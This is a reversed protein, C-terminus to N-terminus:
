SNLLKDFEDVQKPPTIKLSARSSPTFGFQIAITKARDWAVSNRKILRQYVKENEDTLVADFTLKSLEESSEIYIAYENCYSLFMDLDILGLLNMNILEKGKSKYIKKALASFWTPPAPLKTIKEAQPESQSIRCPQATGRMQKLATPTAKRGKM